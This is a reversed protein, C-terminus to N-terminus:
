CLTLLCTFNIKFSTHPLMVNQFDSKELDNFGEFVNGTQITLDNASHSRLVGIVDSVLENTYNYRKSSDVKTLNAWVVLSLPVSFHMEEVETLEGNILFFSLSKGKPYVRTSVKGGDNNYVEPFTKDESIGIQALPYVNEIWGLADLSTNINQIKKDFFKPDTYTAIM